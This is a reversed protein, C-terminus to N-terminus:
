DKSTALPKLLDKDFSIIEDQYRKAQALLLCGVFDLKPNQACYEAAYKALASVAFVSLQLLATVARSVTTRDLAYIANYGLVQCM